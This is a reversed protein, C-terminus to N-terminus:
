TLRELHNDALWDSGPLRWRLVAIRECAPVEVPDKPTLWTEPPSPGVLTPLEAETAGLDRLGVVIWAPPTNRSDRFIIPEQRAMCASLVIITEASDPQVTLLGHRREYTLRLDLPRGSALVYGKTWGPRPVFPLEGWLHLSFSGDDRGFAHLRPLPEELRRLREMLKKLVLKTITPPCPRTLPAHHDSSSRAEKLPLRKLWRDVYLSRKSAPLGLGELRVWLGPPRTDSRNFLLRFLRLTLEYVTLGPGAPDCPDGLTRALFHQLRHEPHLPRRSEILQDLREALAHRVAGDPHAFAALLVSPLPLSYESPM